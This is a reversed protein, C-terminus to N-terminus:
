GCNRRRGVCKGVSGTYLRTKLGTKRRAICTRPQSQTRKARSAQSAQPRHKPEPIEEIKQNPTPDIADVRAAANSDAAPERQDAQAAPTPSVKRTGPANPEAPSQSCDDARRSEADAPAHARRDQLQRLHDLTKFYRQSLRAEYRSLKSLTDGASADRETAAGIIVRDAEAADEPLQEPFNDYYLAAENIKAAFLAAELCPVRRMRWEADALQRLLNWEVVTQPQFQTELESVLFEFDDLNEDPLVTAQARLGHKLANQSSKAKGAATRPGTSEQANQQNARTQKKTAM